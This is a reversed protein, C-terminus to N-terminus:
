TTYYITLVDNEADYEPTVFSNWGRSAFESLPTGEELVLTDDSATKITVTTTDELSNAVKPAVKYLNLYFDNNRTLNDLYLRSNLLAKRNRRIDNIEKIM